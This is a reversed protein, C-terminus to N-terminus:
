AIVARQRLDAIEDTMYGHEMLVQDTDAGLLPPPTKANSRRGNVSLPLAVVKHQRAGEVPLDAIM